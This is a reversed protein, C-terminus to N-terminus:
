NIRVNKSLLKEGLGSFTKQTNEVWAEPIQTSRKKIMDAVDPKGNGTGYAMDLQQSYEDSCPPLNHYKHTHSKFMQLFKQLFDVLEDGYPLVHASDLIKQMEEDDIQEKGNTLNFSTNRAPGSAEPSLLNINQAVITATSSTGDTFDCDHQKLKLYAPNKKNYVFSENNLNFKRSGCRILLDKDGLIIDTDGRGYVTVDENDGLSGDADVKERPSQKPKTNSGSLLSTASNNYGDYKMMQPQSIIPGMYFRQSSAVGPELLIVFAAEGIKPKINIQKPLFPFAFPLESIPKDKDANIRIKIRDGGTPDYLDVVEGIYFLTDM